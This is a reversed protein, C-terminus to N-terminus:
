EENKEKIHVGVFGVLMLGAIVVMIYIYDVISKGVQPLVGIEEVIENYIEENAKKNEATTNEVTNNESVTNNVVENEKKEKEEQILKDVESKSTTLYQSMVYAEKGEYQIKDWGNDGTAIRKIKQGLILGGIAEYSTGWGNRVNLSRKSYVTDGTATWKPEKAAEPQQTTLYKSLVYGVSGNFEIKDWGNDGVSIRKTSSNKSLSGLKESNADASKRVNLKETAYVKDGTATYGPENNNTQVTTNQTVNTQQLSATSTAYSYNLAIIGFILSVIIIVIFIKEIGKIM